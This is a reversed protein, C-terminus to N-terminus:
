YCFSVQLWGVAVARVKLNPELEKGVKSNALPKKDRQMAIMVLTLTFCFNFKPFVEFDSGSTSPCDVFYLCQSNTPNEKTKSKHTVIM